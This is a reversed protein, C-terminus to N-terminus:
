VYKWSGDSASQTGTESTSHPQQLRRRTIAGDQRKVPELPPRGLSTLRSTESFSTGTKLPKFNNIRIAERIPIGVRFITLWTIFCLIVLFGVEVIYNYSGFEVCVTDHTRTCAMKIRLCRTCPACETNADNRYTNLPCQQIGRPTPAGAAVTGSCVSNSTMTCPTEVYTAQCTNCPFCNRTPHGKSATSNYWQGAGCAHVAVVFSCATETHYLHFDTCESPDTSHVDTFLVGNSACQQNYATTGAACAPCQEGDVVAGYGAAADVNASTNLYFGDKCHTVIRRLVNDTTPTSGITIHFSAAFSMTTPSCVRDTTYTPAVSQYEVPVLCQQVPHCVRDTAPGPPIVEFTTGVVCETVPACGNNHVRGNEKISAVANMAGKATTAAMNTQRPISEYPPTTGIRVTRYTNNPCLQPPIPSRISMPLVLGATKLSQWLRSLKWHRRDHRYAEKCAVGCTYLNDLLWLREGENLKSRLSPTLEGTGSPHLRKLVPSAVAKNHAQPTNEKYKGAVEYFQRSRRVRGRQTVTVDCVDFAGFFAPTGTYALLVDRPTGTNYWHNVTMCYPVNADDNNRWAFVNREWRYPIDESVRGTLVGSNPNPDGGDFVDPTTTGDCYAEDLPDYYETKRLAPVSIDTCSGDDLEHADCGVTGDSGIYTTVPTDSISSIDVCPAGPFLLQLQTATPPKKASNGLYCSTGLQYVQLGNVTAYVLAYNGNTINAIISVLETSNPVSSVYQRAYELIGGVEIVQESVTTADTTYDPNTWCASAPMSTTTRVFSATNFLYRNYPGADVVVFQGLKRFFIHPTSESAVPRTSRSAIDERTARRQGFTINTARTTCSMTSASALVFCRSIMVRKERTQKAMQTSTPSMTHVFVLADGEAGNVAFSAVAPNTGWVHTHSMIADSSLDLPIRLDTHIATRVAPDGLVSREITVTCRQPSALSARTCSVYVFSAEDSTYSGGGTMVTTTWYTNVSVAGSDANFLVNRFLDHSMDFLFLPTEATTTKVVTPTTSSERYEWVISVFTTRHQVNVYARLLEGAGCAGTYMDEPFIYVDRVVYDTSFTWNHWPTIVTGSGTLTHVSIRGPEVCVTAVVCLGVTQVDVSGPCTTQTVVAGTNTDLHVVAGTNGKRACYMGVTDSPDPVVKKCRTLSSEFAVDVDQKTFNFRPPNPCITSDLTGRATPSGSHIPIIAHTTNIRITIARRLLDTYLNLHRLAIEYATSHSEDGNARVCSSTSMTSRFASTGDNTYEENWLSQTVNCWARPTVRGMDISVRPYFPMTPFGSDMGWAISTVLPTHALGSFSRTTENVVSVRLLQAVVISNWTDSELLVEVPLGRSVAKVTARASTAVPNGQTTRVVRKKSVFPDTAFSSYSITGSAADHRYPCLVHDLVASSGYGNQTSVLALALPAQLLVDLPGNATADTVIPANEAIRTSYVSCATAAADALMHVSYIRDNGINGSIVVVTQTYLTPPSTHENYSEVNTTEVTFSWPEDTYGNHHIYGGSSNFTGLTQTVTTETTLVIFPRPVRDLYLLLYEPTATYQTLVTASCDVNAGNAGGLIMAVASVVPIMSVRMAELYECYSGIIRESIERMYM